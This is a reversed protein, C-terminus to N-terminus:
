QGRQGVREDAGFRLFHSSSCLSLGFLHPCKQIKRASALTGPCHANETGALDKALEPHRGLDGPAKERCNRLFDFRLEAYHSLIEHPRTALWQATESM